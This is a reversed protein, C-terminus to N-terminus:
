KWHVSLDVDLKDSILEKLRPVLKDKVLRSKIFDNPRDPNTGEVTTEGLLEAQSKIRIHAVISGRPHLEGWLTDIKLGTQRNEREGETESTYKFRITFDANYVVIDGIRIREIKGDHGTYETVKATGKAQDRKFDDKHFTTWGRSASEGVFHRKLHKVVDDTIDNRVVEQGLSTHSLLVWGVVAAAFPIQRM